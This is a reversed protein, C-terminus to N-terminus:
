PRTWELEKQEIHKQGIAMGKQEEPRWNRARDLEGSWNNLFTIIDQRRYKYGSEYLKRIEEFETLADTRKSIASLQANEKDTWKTTEKRHFLLSVKNKLYDKDKDKEKDKDKDDTKTTCVGVITTCNNDITSKHPQNKYRSEVAKKRIRSIHASSSLQEEIFKIRYKEDEYLLIGCQKLQEVITNLQITTIEMQKSFLVPNFEIEGGKQWANICLNLFVGQELAGFASIKGAKWESPYFRFYPLEVM